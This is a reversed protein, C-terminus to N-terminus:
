PPYVIKSAVNLSTYLNSISFTPNGGPCMIASCERIHSLITGMKPKLLTRNHFGTKNRDSKDSNMYQSFLSDELSEVLHMKCIFRFKLFLSLIHNSHWKARLRRFLLSFMYTGGKPRIGNQFFYWYFFCLKCVM